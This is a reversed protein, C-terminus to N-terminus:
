RGRKLRAVIHPDRPYVQGEPSTYATDTITWGNALLWTDCEDATYLKPAAKFTRDTESWLAIMIDNSLRNWPIYAFRQTQGRQPDRTERWMSSAHLLAYRFLPIRHAIACAAVRTENKDMYAHVQYAATIAGREVAAITKNLESEAQYTRGIRKDRITFTPAGFSRKCYSLYSYQQCRLAVGFLSGDSEIVYDIGSSVDLMRCVAHTDHEIDILRGNPWMYSQVHPMVLRSWQKGREMSDFVERSM